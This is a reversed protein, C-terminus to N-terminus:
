AGEWRGLTVRDRGAYDAVTEVAVFGGSELLTRVAEGQDYGHELLLWGQARLHAPADRLIRRIDDLGDEGSVLASRPEFRLDGQALHQDRAAIYPPNSAILDFSQSALEAFWDSQLLQVSLGLREANHRAIALAGASADVAWVEAAPYESALALAIAGTGTGLDLVRTSPTMRALAQEVLVETDARPILTDPSVKLPLSWFEREGILYAVPVGQARQEILQDFQAQQEPSLAREPWTFLYTRSQGLVFCLLVEAERRAETAAGDGAANQAAQELLTRELRVQAQHLAQQLTM